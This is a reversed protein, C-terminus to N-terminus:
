PGEELAARLRAEARAVLAYAAKRTIRFVSAIEEGSLGVVHRLLVAARHRESLKGLASELEPDLRDALPDDDISVEPPDEHPIEPRRSRRRYEDLCGYRVGRFLWARLSRGDGRIKPAARVLELFAQQVVDEAAGRDGLMGFAYSVLDDVTEEYVARFAGDSRRRVGEVHPDLPHPASRNLGTIWVGKAPLLAAVSSM